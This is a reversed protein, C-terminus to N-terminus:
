KQEHNGREMNLDTKLINLMKIQKNKRKILKEIEDLSPTIKDKSLFEFLLGDDILMKKLFKIRGKNLNSIIM